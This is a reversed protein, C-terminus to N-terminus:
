DEKSPVFGIPRRSPVRYISNGQGDVLGTDVPTDDGVSVSITRHDDTWWDDGAEIARVARTVYKPAKM